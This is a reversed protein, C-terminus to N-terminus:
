RPTAAVPWSSRVVLGGLRASPQARLTAGHVQAVRQVISWGLGSGSEGSGLVRFFREGLRQRAAEDMGPGSDEVTLHVRGDDGDDQEV